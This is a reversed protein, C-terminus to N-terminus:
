KWEAEDIWLYELMFYSGSIAAQWDGASKKVLFEPMLITFM